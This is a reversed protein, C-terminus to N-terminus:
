DKIKIIYFDNDFKSETIEISDEQSDTNQAQVYSLLIKYAQQIQNFKELADDDPNQDPHFQKAKKLYAQRITKESINDDLEIVEKANILDELKVRKAEMTYFSYCPLPRVLKFNLKGGLGADLEDLAKEILNQQQQNVMFATNSVMQDNLLEHKKASQCLPELESFILASMENRKQDLLKKVLFGVEMQQAQTINKNQQISNKLSIVQPDVAIEAIINSFDAWTVVIDIEIFGSIKEFTQLILDYGKELITKVQLTSKAFTGLQMPIITNFGLAMISEITQQHALLLRALPEAGLDNYEIVATEAVIASVKGFPISLVNLKDLERFQESAYYNPIIGYIYLGKLIM